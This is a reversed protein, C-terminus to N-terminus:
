EAKEPEGRILIPLGRHRAYGQADLWALFAPDQSLLDSATHVEWVRGESCRFSPLAIGGVLVVAAPPTRELDVLVDDLALIGGSVAPSAPARDALVYLEPRWGAVFVPADPATIAQLRHALARRQTRTARDSVSGTALSPDSVLLWGTGLALAIGAGLTATAGVRRLRPGGRARALLARLELGALPAAAPLLLMFYHLSWRLGISATLLGVAALAVLGAVLRPAARRQALAGWAALVLVANALLPIGLREVVLAGYRLYRPLTTYRELEQVQTVGTEPAGAGLAFGHLRELYPAPDGLVWWLLGFAGVAIWWGAAACALGRALVRVGARPALFALAVPEVLVFVAAQEKALAALGLAAGARLCRVASTPSGTPNLRVVLYLALGLNAWPEANSSLGHFPLLGLVYLAATAVSAGRDHTWRWVLWGLLVGSLGVAASTLVDALWFSRGGDLSYLLQHLRLWPLDFPGLGQADAHRAMSLYGYEDVSRTLRSAAFLARLLALGLGTAALTWVARRRDADARPGEGAGALLAGVAGLAALVVLATLTAM